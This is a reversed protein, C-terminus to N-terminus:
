TSAGTIGRPSYCGRTKPLTSASPTPAVFNWSVEEGASVATEQPLFETVLANRVEESGGGAFVQGPESASPETAPALQQALEELQQRGRQNVEESSPIPQDEPVVTVESIMETFHLTCFGVYTGPAIDDALRLEFMEGDPLFGSNYFLETGTFPPPQTVECQQTPDTPLEGGTVFCPNVAAQNADGPGEPLMQPVWEFAAEVETPPPGESQLQEPTM